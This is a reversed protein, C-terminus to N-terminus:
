VEFTSQHVEIPAEFFKMAIRMTMLNGVTTFSSMSFRGEDVTVHPSSEAEIKLKCFTSYLM